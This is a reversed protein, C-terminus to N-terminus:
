VRECPRESSHRGWASGLLGSFEPFVAGRAAEDGFVFGAMAKVILLVPALSTITYFAIAGGCSPARIAMFVNASRKFLSVVRGFRTSREDGLQAKTTVAM